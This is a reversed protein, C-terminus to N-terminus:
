MTRCFRVGVGYGSEDSMPKCWVVKARGTENIPDRNEEGNLGQNIVEIRIDSGPRIADNSIFHMGDVSFNQMFANNYSDDGFNSFVIPAGNYNRAYGRNKKLNM